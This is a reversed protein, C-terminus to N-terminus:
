SKLRQDGPKRSRKQRKISKGRERSTAPHVEAIGDDVPQCPQCPAVFATSPEAFVPAAASTPPVALAPTAASTPPAAPAPPCPVVSVEEETASCAVATDFAADLAAPSLLGSDSPEPVDALLETIEEDLADQEAQAQEAAVYAAWTYRPQGGSSLYPSGDARFVQGNPGERLDPRLPGHYVLCAQGCQENVFGFAGQRRAHGSNFARCLPAIREIAV